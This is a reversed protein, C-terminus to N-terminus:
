IRARRVDAWALRYLGYHTMEGYYTDAFKLRRRRQSKRNLFRAMRKLVHHNVKRFARSPYGVSYFAGWGKLLRNVREVVTEVPLLVNRSHTLEHVERCLRKVSRPSPGFHLHRGGTGFLRDRAKRFEYGLFVLSPREADLDLVKTKERNVTLGMREELIGDVKRLSGDKWRKALLVFDDAYRVTTVAQGMAKATLGAITEFWHLYVNSLLPSMVGGQPTGRGKPSKMVGNPEKACVKLWQRILKLVSGDAIRMELAALLKDHPITDFYSSLDADYVKADGEKVKEAIREAADQASRNPRFGFSCDQFDAEFIPEMVLKVAMQVVRDKVTPIGLPRLKGNAKEIYGRRVPSARYTKAKLERQVSALFGEVGGEGREIDEFTQGDVGPAKDKKWVREWACRITEEDVVRGFLTYFRFKPEAKAKRSLRERTLALNPFKAMRHKAAVAAIEEETMRKRRLSDAGASRNSASGICSGKAGRDNGAEVSSRNWGVEAGAKAAASRGLERASSESRAMDRHGTGGPADCFSKPADTSAEAIMVCKAVPSRETLLKSAYM